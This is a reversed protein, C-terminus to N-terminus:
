SLQDSRPVTLGSTTPEIGAFVWFVSSEFRYPNSNCLGELLPVLSSNCTIFAIMLWKWQDHIFAGLIKHEKRGFSTRRWKRKQLLKDDESASLNAIQSYITSFFKLRVFDFFVTNVTIYHELEYLWVMCARTSPAISQTLCCLWVDKNCAFLGVRKQSSAVFSKLM